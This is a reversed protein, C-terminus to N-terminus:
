RAGPNLWIMNWTVFTGIPSWLLFPILLLGAVTSVQWVQATLFAGWIFGLAGVITGATLSRLRCLVPTYALILLELILYGGMLLWVQDPQAQWVYTASAIGCIFILIWIFPIFQEIKLWRPRRLKMFWGFNYPLLRSFGFGVLTAILAIAILTPINM